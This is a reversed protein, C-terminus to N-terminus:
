INIRDLSSPHNLAYIYHIEYGHKRSSTVKILRHILPPFAAFLVISARLRTLSFALIESDTAQNLMFLTSRLYSKILPRLTKWKSTNKLELITGKKCNSSSIGLIARIVDDAETLIFTLIKCFTESNLIQPCSGTDLVGTSEDGYHCAARYANLLNVFAPVNHQEKVLQCWSSIASSTFLKSKYSNPGDEDISQM